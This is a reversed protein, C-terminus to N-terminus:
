FDWWEEPSTMKRLGSVQAGASPLALMMMSVLTAPAWHNVTNGFFNDPALVPAPHFYLEYGLTRMVFECLAPSREKDENEFYLVPRLREIQMAGSQLVQLENGDVDVKILDCRELALDDLAMFPPSWRESVYAHKGWRASATEVDPSAAVFANVPLTNRIGNLALNACLVNFTEAHSEIAFVKGADGVALSLPLTMDGINAGVDIVTAGPGVFNRMMAVEAESYEGYLEFCKGIHPGTFLMWGYRCRKLKLKGFEMTVDSPRRTAASRPAVARHM